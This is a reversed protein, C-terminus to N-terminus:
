LHVNFYIIRRISNNHKSIKEKNLDILPFYINQRRDIVSEEEDIYGKNLLENLYTQKMNNTTITRGTESKYYACLQSTTVAIRNEEKDEKKDPWIKIDYLKLFIERYFQIKHTPIGTVNQTIYLAESLDEFTAVVLRESGYLLAPRQHIKALPIINLLSFIRNTARNDTGRNSQLAAGLYGCYPIWVSNTNHNYDSQNFQYLKIM